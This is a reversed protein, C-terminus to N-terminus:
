MAINHGERKINRHLYWCGHQPGTLVAGAFAETYTGSSNCAQLSWWWGHQHGTLRSPHVVSLVATWGLVPVEAAVPSSPAASCDIYHPFLCSPFPPPPLPLCAACVPRISTRLMMM